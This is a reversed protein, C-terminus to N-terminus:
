SDYLRGARLGGPTRDEIVVVPHEGVRVSRIDPPMRIAFTEPSM